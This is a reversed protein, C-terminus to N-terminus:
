LNLLAPTNLLQLLINLLSTVQDVPLGQQNLLNTVSCLLNGLLNGPGSQATVDLVVRDLHVKLGLLNLDLPALDLHLIPCTAAAAAQGAQGPTVPIAVGTRRVSRSGIKGTLTGVANPKGGRTEFRKVTFKGTFKKGNRAKGTVPINNLSTVQPTTTTSQAGATVPVLLLVACLAALTVAAKRISM